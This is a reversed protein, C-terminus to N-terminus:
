NVFDVLENVKDRLKNLDENPFSIDLKNVKKFEAEPFKEEVDFKEEFEELKKKTM